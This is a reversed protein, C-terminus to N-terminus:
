YKKILVQYNKILLIYKGEYEKMFKNIGVGTKGWLYDDFLIFGNSKCIQFSNVADIYVQEPRHDGDIYIFDFKEEYKKILEEFVNISLDRILEIKKSNLSEQTNNIFRDYQNKFYFFETKNKNEDEISLNDNLYVDTLPDICILKGDKSLMKDVIYNSTLGEFCGIELCFNMNRINETNKVFEQNWNKTYNKM